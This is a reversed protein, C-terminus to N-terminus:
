SDVTLPLRSAAPAPMSPLSFMSSNAMPEDLSVLPKPLTM